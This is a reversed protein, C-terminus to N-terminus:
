PERSMEGASRVEAQAIERTSAVTWGVDQACTDQLKLSRCSVEESRLCETDVTGFEDAKELDAVERVRNEETTGGDLGFSEM